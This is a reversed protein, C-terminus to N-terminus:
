EYFYLSVENEMSNAHDLSIFLTLVLIQYIDNVVELILRKKADETKTILAQIIIISALIVSLVIPFIIKSALGQQSSRIRSIVDHILILLMTLLFYRRLKIWAIFTVKEYEFAKEFQTQSFSRASM